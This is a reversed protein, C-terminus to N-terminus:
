IFTRLVFLRVTLLIKFTYLAPLKAVVGELAYGKSASARCKDRSVLRSIM